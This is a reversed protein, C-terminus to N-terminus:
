RSSPALGYLSAYKSMAAAQSLEARAQNMVATLKSTRCNQRQTWDPAGAATM